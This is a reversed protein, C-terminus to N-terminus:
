WPRAGPAEVAGEEGTEMVFVACRQVEDDVLGVFERRLTGQGVLRGHQVLHVPDDTATARLVEPHQHDGLPRRNQV